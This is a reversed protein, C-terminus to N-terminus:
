NVDKRMEVDIQCSYTGGHSGMTVPCARGKYLLEHSGERGGVEGVEEKTGLLKQRPVHLETGATQKHKHVYVIKLQDGKENGKLSERWTGVMVQRAWSLNTPQTYETHTHIHTHTHTPTHTHM